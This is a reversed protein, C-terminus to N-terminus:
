GWIIFNHKTDNLKLPNLEFNLNAKGIASEYHKALYSETKFEYGAPTSLWVFKALTNIDITYNGSKDTQVVNFGDSIVVSAIGKGKSTVRGSIKNNLQTASFPFSKLSVFLTTGLLASKQIFSRRNM